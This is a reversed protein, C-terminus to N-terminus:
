PCHRFRTQEFAEVIKHVTDPSLGRLRIDLTAEDAEIHGLMRVPMLLAADGPLGTISVEDEAGDDVRQIRGTILEITYPLFNGCVM